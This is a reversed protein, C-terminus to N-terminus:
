EMVGNGKYENILRGEREMIGMNKEEFGKKWRFVMIDGKKKEKEESRVM